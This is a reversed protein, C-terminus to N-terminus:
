GKCLIRNKFSISKGSIWFKKYRSSWSVGYLLYIQLVLYMPTNSQIKKSSSLFIMCNTWRFKSSPFMPATYCYGPRKAYYIELDLLTLDFHTYDSSKRDPHLLFCPCIFMNIKEFKNLVKAEYDWFNHLHWDIETREIERTCNNIISYKQKSATTILINHTFNKSRNCM